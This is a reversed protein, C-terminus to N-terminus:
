GKLKEAVEGMLEKARALGSKAAVPRGDPWRPAGDKYLEVVGNRIMKDAFEDPFGAVERRSYQSYGAVSQSTLFQVVKTM